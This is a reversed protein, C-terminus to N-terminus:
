SEITGPEYEEYQWQFNDILVASNYIYDPSGSPGTDWIVFRLEIVEGGKVNGRTTLWGTGGYSGFGTGALENTDVCTTIVTGADSTGNVCQKFLGAPALNVGVPNGDSDMALNKDTPNALEPNEVPAVYTSDLLTLFFDNYDSCVYKVYEQSFFYVNVSFSKAADPVRVRLKFMVPDNVSGATGAGGCVPAAPFVNGNLTLWDAPATSQAMQKGGFKDSDFPNAAFGTTLMAMRDGATPTLVSGFSPFIGHSQAHPTGTGSPLLFEASIVGWDTGDEAATACLGIVKAFDMPDTSTDLVSGDCDYLGEDIEDNCNDDLGNPVEPAGPYVNKPDPCGEEGETTYCCDLGGCETVGDKDQDLDDATGNCDQDIEDGCTDYLPTVQGSCATWGSGDEKCFKKGAKCTGVGETGEPGTYPCVEQTMPVCAMGDADIDMDIDPVFTDDDDTLTDDVEGGDDTGGGDDPKVTDTDADKDAPTDIDVSVEECLGTSENCAWGDPCTELCASVKKEECSLVALALVFLVSWFFCRM